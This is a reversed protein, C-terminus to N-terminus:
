SSQEPLWVTFSVATINGTSKLALESLGTRRRSELIIRLIDIAYDIVNHM